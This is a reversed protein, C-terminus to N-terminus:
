SVFVPSQSSHQLVPIGDDVPEAEAVETSLQHGLQYWDMADLRAAIVARWSQPTLEGGSWGTQSLAANLLLLNPPPWEPDSLYWILDYLDRGKTYSRQRSPPWGRLTESLGSASAEGGVIVGPVGRSMSRHGGAGPLGTGACRACRNRARCRRPLTPNPPGSASAVRQRVSQQARAQASPFGLKEVASKWM